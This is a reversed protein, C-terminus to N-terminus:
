GGANSGRAATPRELALCSRSDSPKVNASCFDAFRSSLLSGSFNPALVFFDSPNVQLALLSLIATM